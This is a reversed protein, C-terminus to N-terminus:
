PLPHHEGPVVKPLLRSVFLSNNTGEVLVLGAFKGNIFKKMRLAGYRPFSEVKRLYIDEEGPIICAFEDADLVRGLTLNAGKQFVYLNYVDGDLMPFFCSENTTDILTGAVNHTATFFDGYKLQAYGRSGHRFSYGCTNGKHDGMPLLGPDGQNGFIFGVSVGLDDSLEHGYHHIVGNNDLHGNKWDPWYNKNSPFTVYVNKSDYLHASFRGAHIVIKQQPPVAYWETSRKANNAISAM